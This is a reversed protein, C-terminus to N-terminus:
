LEDRKTREGSPPLVNLEGEEEYSPLDDANKIDRSMAKGLAIGEPIRQDLSEGKVIASRQEKDGSKHEEKELHVGPGSEATNANAGNDVGKGEEDTRIKESEEEKPVSNRQDKEELDVSQANDVVKGSKAENGVSSDKNEDGVRDNGTVTEMKDVVISKLILQLTEKERTLDTPPETPDLNVNIIKGAETPGSNPHIGSDINGAIDGTKGANAGSIESNEGGIGGNGGGNGITDGSGVMKEVPLSRVVNEIRIQTTIVRQQKVRDGFANVNCVTFEKMPNDGVASMLLRAEETYLFVVPIHIDGVNGDSSMLFFPASKSSSGAVNDIIIAAAAGAAQLRRAKDVFMCSGRDALVISGTLDGPNLLDSCANTPDAVRVKATVQENENLIRGFQASGTSLVTLNGDKDLFSVAQSHTDLNHLLSDPAGTSVRLEQIFLQSEEADEKSATKDLIRFYFTGNPHSELALGYEQLIKKHEPNEPQFEHLTLKRPKSERPPACKKESVLNKMPERVSHPFLGLTSPCQRTLEEDSDLDMDFNDNKIDRSMAKGLAIGEPIRQELSEGKVIASRQEKDGSKLEEKELHVGPRSEATKANAGNDVGKGEEDTRIKESEEEKPVSNGTRVDRVAAYGCPVRAHTQLARLVSKGVDLYHPDGTSKYLFYTSELFEPRLPHQGWHVSVINQHEMKVQLGPWFALLADMFNRSTMQPKHMHVDILLPGRSIYKMVASYHKDFRSLYKDQGLLVYAKLCYEYYSDIGAGVGSDRRIWDGSDINLVTGMLDSDRNRAAWLGDMARHAKAEFIPLGSLRSLAAMELIMTGACATCTDVSWELGKSKLGHRLNIRGHPIGTTTNFAPLLRFGIDKALELLQGTYWQMLDTNLKFYEALVHGSLLGGLVRINTEFVSVVIDSDFNVNESILKTAHEFEEIDGLIALTDLTDILTLSFNGLTDDIDGRSTHQSRWRGTCSLPMLEDAPYANDMYARYAHYFMDRSEERLTMKEEKSMGNTYSKSTHNYNEGHVFCSFMSYLLYYFVHFNYSNVAMM